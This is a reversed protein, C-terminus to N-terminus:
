LRKPTVTFIPFGVSVVWFLVYGRRQRPHPFTGESTKGTKSTKSTMGLSALFGQKTEDVESFLVNGNRKAPPIHCVNRVVRSLSVKAAGALNYSFEAETGTSGAKLRADAQNLFAV